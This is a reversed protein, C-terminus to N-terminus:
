RCGEPGVVRVWCWMEPEKLELLDGGSVDVTVYGVVTTDGRSGFRPHVRVVSCSGAM